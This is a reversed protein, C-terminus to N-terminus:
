YFEPQYVSHKADRCGLIAAVLWVHRMHSLFQIKFKIENLFFQIVVHPDKSFLALQLVDNGTLM